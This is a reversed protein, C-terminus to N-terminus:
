QQRVEEKQEDTLEESKNIGPMSLNSIKPQPAGEHGKNKAHDPKRDGELKIAPEFRPRSQHLSRRLTSSLSTRILGTAPIRRLHLTSSM